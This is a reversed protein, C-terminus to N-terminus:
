FSFYNPPLLSGGVYVSLTSEIQNIPTEECAKSTEFIFIGESTGGQYRFLGNRPSPFWDGLSQTNSRSAIVAHENYIQHQLHIPHHLTPM